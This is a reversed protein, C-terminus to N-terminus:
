LHVHLRDLESVKLKNISQLMDIRFEISRRAAKAMSTMYDAEFVREEGGTVDPSNEVIYNRKATETAGKGLREAAVFYARAYVAEGDRKRLELEHRWQEEYAAARAHMAWVRGMLNALENPGLEGDGQELEEPNIGSERMIGLLAARARENIAGSVPDRNPASM